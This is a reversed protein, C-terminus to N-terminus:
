FVKNSLYSVVFIWYWIHSQISADPKKYSVEYVYDGVPINTDTNNLTFEAIWNAPDTNNALKDILLNTDDTDSLTSKKRVTFYIEYSLIDVPFWDSWTFNITFTRHTWQKIQIPSIQTM